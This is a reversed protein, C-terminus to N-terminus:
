TSCGAKVELLPAGAGTRDSRRSQRRRRGSTSAAAPQDAITPRQRYWAAAAETPDFRLRPRKGAGVHRAGLEDAHDYVTERSVGLLQALTAADVLPRVPTVPECGRAALAPTLREAIRPALEAALQELQDPSLTTM